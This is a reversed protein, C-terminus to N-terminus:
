FVAVCWRKLEANETQLRENKLYLESIRNELVERSTKLQTQLNEKMKEYQRIRDIAIVSSKILDTLTSTYIIVIVTFLSWPFRIMVNFHLSVTIKLIIHLFFMIAVYHGTSVNNLQKLM